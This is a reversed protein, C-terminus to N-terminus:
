VKSYRGSSRAAGNEKSHIWGGVWGNCGTDRVRASISGVVCRVPGCTWAALTMPLFRPWCLGPADDEGALRAATLSRDVVCAAISWGVLCRFPDSRDILRGGVRDICRVVCCGNETDSGGSGGGGGGGGCSSKDDADAEDAEEAAAGGLLVLWLGAAAAAAGRGPAGRSGGMSGASFSCWHPSCPASNLDPLNELDSDASTTRVIWAYAAALLM